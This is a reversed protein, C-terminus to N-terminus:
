LPSCIMVINWVVSCQLAYCQVVCCLLLDHPHSVCRLVAFCHLAGFLLGSCLMAYCRVAFCQLVAVRAICRLYLLSCCLLVYGHVECCDSHIFSRVSPRVTPHISPSCNFMKTWHM